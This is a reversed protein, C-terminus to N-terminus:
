EKMLMTGILFGSIVFFTDVGLPGQWVWRMWAPIDDHLRQFLPLGGIFDSALFCHYILVSLVSIARLGDLAAYNGHPRVFLQRLNKPLSFASM